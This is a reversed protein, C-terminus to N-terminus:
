NFKLVIVFNSNAKNLKNKYIFPSITNSLIKLCLFGLFKNNIKSIKLIKSNNLKLLLLISLYM